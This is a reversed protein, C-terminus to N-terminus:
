ADRSGPQSLRKSTSSSRVKSLHLLISDGTRRPASPILFNSTVSIEQAASIIDSWRRKSTM